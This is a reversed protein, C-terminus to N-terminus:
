KELCVLDEVSFHQRARSSTTPTALSLIPGSEMTQSLVVKREQTNHIRVCGDFSTSVLLSSSSSSSAASGGTTTPHLYSLATIGDTPADPLAIAEPPLSEASTM